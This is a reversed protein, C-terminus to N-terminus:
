AWDRGYADGVAVWCEGKGQCLAGFDTGTPYESRTWHKKGAKQAVMLRLEELTPLRESKRQAADSAKRWTKTELPRLKYDKLVM